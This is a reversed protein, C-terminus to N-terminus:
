KRAPVVPSHRMAEGLAALLSVDRKFVTRVISGATGRRQEGLLCSISGVAYALFGARGLVFAPHRHHAAVQSAFGSLTRSTFGAHRYSAGEVMWAAARVGGLHAANGRHTGRYPDVPDPPLRARVARFRPAFDIVRFSGPRPTDFVTELINSNPQYRQKSLEGDAPGIRFGDAMKKMSCRPVCRNRISDHCSLVM